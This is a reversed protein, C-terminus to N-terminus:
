DNKLSVIGLVTTCQGCSASIQRNTCEHANWSSFNTFKERHAFRPRRKTKAACVPLVRVMLQGSRLQSPVSGFCLEKLKAQLHTPLIVVPDTETESRQQRRGTPGASGGEGLLTVANSCVFYSGGFEFSSM